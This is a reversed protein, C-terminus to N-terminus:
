VLADATAADLPPRGQVHALVQQAHAVGAAEAAASVGEISRPADGEEVGLYQELLHAAVAKAHVEAAKINGRGTVVNGVGFVGPKPAYAGTNWDAYDYYAGKIAVGHIAEPLSGIASVVLSSRLESVHDD